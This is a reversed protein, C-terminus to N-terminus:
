ILPHILLLIEGCKLRMIRKEFLIPRGFTIAPRGKKSVLFKAKSGNVLAHHDNFRYLDM